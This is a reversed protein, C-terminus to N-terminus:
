SARQLFSPHRAGDPSPADNGADAALPQDPNWGLQKLRLRRLRSTDNGHYAMWLSGQLAKFRGIRHAAYRDAQLERRTPFWLLASKPILLLLAAWAAMTQLIGTTTELMAVAGAFLVSTVLFLYNLATHGFRIHGLEHGLLYQRVHAPADKTLNHSILIYRMYSWAGYGFAPFWYPLLVLKPKMRTFVRRWGQLEPMASAPERTLRALDETWAALAAAAEAESMRNLRQNRIKAMWSEGWMFTIGTIIIAIGGIIPVAYESLDAYFNMMIGNWPLSAPNNGGAVGGFSGGSSGFTSTSINGITPPVGLNGAMMFDVLAGAFAAISFGLIVKALTSFHGKIEHQPFLAASLWALVALTGLIGFGISQYAHLM